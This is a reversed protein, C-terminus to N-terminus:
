KFGTRRKERSLLVESPYSSQASHERQVSPDEEKEGREGQVFQGNAKKKEWAGALKWGKERKKTAPSGPEEKEKEGEVEAFNLEKKEGEGHTLTGRKTGGERIRL